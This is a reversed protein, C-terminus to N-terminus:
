ARIAPMELRRQSIAHAISPSMALDHFLDLAQTHMQPWIKPIFTEALWKRALMQGKSGMVCALSVSAFAGSGDEYSIYFNNRAQKVASDLEQAACAGWADTFRDFYSVTGARWADASYFNWVGHEETIFGWDFEYVACSKGFKGYKALDPLERWVDARAMFEHCLPGPGSPQQSLFRDLEQRSTAIRSDDPRRLALMSAVSWVIQQFDHEHRHM